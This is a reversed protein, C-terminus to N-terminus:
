FATIRPLVDYKNLALILVNVIGIYSITFCCTKIYIVGGGGFLFLLSAFKSYITMEACRGSYVYFCYCCRNCGSLMNVIYSSFHHVDFYFGIGM